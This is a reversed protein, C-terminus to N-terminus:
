RPGLTDVHADPDDDTGAAAVDQIWQATRPQDALVSLVKRRAAEREIRDFTM